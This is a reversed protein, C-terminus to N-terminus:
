EEYIETTVRKVPKWRGPRNEWRPSLEIQHMNQQIQRREQLRDDVRAEFRDDDETDITVTVEEDEFEPENAAYVLGAQAFEPLFVLLVAVFCAKM